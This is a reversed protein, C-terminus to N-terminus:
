AHSSVLVVLSRPGVHYGRQDDLIEREDDVIDLPPALSTDIFRTWRRNEFPLPLEFSHGDWHANTLILVDSDTKGGNVLMGLSRSEQSWDPQDAKMGHWSIFPRGNDAAEFFSRRRLIPHRKRFAILSRFFRLLDANHDVLSWDLWSIDSDQCYSNNNGRQTRGVEDGGLLMPVGQALLLLAASNKIQRKRLTNIEASVSPGEEGCNWSYNDNTGDAGAEGNEDNHKCDYSVLDALTFGDHSTVFNISHFPERGSAQYLDSSGAMRTALVPVMGPEGRVYRRVDDRFKGNWEAWRGWNPFTGVQYLGAADWAEAILKAQALVPDAAIRELLPPNSLVSGDRGRGLISALDFRFGDVHMETVWYRLSDIILDRVVPHNCNLTNGCGSYNCDQGTEPDTLYYTSKDLGRFSFVQDVGDGEGTHNFVMDLIVEIGSEHLAKVMEKFERIEDGGSYHKALAFFSLPHYGWFNKLREGTLPNKRPNDDPDFATVPMLEVTTIGLEKLYPIKEVIGSFVGPSSVASTPHMTFGRVHMEYIISDALHINLPQEYGWDFDDSVVTSYLAMGSPGPMRPEADSEAGAPLAKSYPDTLVLEKDFRHLHSRSADQRDARFGYGIGPDIGHVFIHWVDGTRNYRPDLPFEIISQSAGPPFLVLTMSSAHRSFIAFNIGGRKLTSGLPLPQGRTVEFDSSILSLLWERAETDAPQTSM